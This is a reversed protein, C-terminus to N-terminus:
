PASRREYGRSAIIAARELTNLAAEREGEPMLSLLWGIFQSLGLFLSGTPSLGDADEIFIHTLGQMAGVLGTQRRLERDQEDPSWADMLQRALRRRASM